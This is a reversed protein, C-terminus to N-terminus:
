EGPPILADRIPEVWQDADIDYVIFDSDFQWHAWSWGRAEAQRAMFDTWRARSAMGAKDYAGFEGLFIPRDHEESWAEARDFDRMIAQQEEPTGTWEVGVPQNGAWSAGQHTFKFPEYYHITVIINRDDEPLELKDLQAIQNWQGPGIIVTRNPNGQRIIALPERLMENWMEPTLTGHPENLIEFIVGSPRDKCHDAVQRWFAVLRERNGEPDRAMRNFEHMDLIVMLDNALAQDVAWDLTEFWQDSLTYEPADGMHRFAHLPIRVGTFGAERILRFHKDQMRARDRSRWLPDYGIINVGRGLRANQDAATPWADGPEAAGAMGPLVSLAVVALAATWACITWSM